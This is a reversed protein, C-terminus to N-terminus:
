WFDFGHMTEIAQAMLQSWQLVEVYTSFAYGAAVQYTDHPKLKARWDVTTIGSRRHITGNFWILVCSLSSLYQEPTIWHKNWSLPHCCHTSCVLPPTRVRSIKSACTLIM